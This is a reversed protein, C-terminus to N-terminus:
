GHVTEVDLRVNEDEAWARAEEVAEERTAYRGLGTNYPEPFGGDEPNWWYLVAFWGAMGRAVSIVPFDEPGLKRMPCQAHHIDHEGQCRSCYGQRSTM